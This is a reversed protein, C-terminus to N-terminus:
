STRAPSNQRSLAAGELGGQAGEFATLWHHEEVQASNPNM